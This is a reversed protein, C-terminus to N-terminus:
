ANSTIHSIVLMDSKRIQSCNTFYPLCLKETGKSIQFSFGTLLPTSGRIFASTRLNQLNMQTSRREDATGERTKRMKAVSTPLDSLSHFPGLVPDRLPAFVRLPLAVSFAKAAKRSGCRACDRLFFAFSRRSAFGSFIKNRFFTMQVAHVRPKM